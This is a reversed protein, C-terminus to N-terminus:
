NLFDVVATAFEEASPPGDGTIINGEVTVDQNSDVVGAADMEADSPSANYWCAIDGEGIVQAKALIVSGFCIASILKEKQQMEKLIGHLEDNDWLSTSGGILVIACYDDPQIDAFAIEVQVTEDGGNAEGLEDSSVIPVYGAVTLADMVPNFELSAYSDRAVVVLVKNSQMEEEEEEPQPTSTPTTEETMQSEETEEVVTEESALNENAKDAESPAACAAVFFM